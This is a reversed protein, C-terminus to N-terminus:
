NFEEENGERGYNRGGFSECNIAEESSNDVVALTILSKGIPNLTTYYNQKKKEGPSM